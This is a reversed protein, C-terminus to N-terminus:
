AGQSTVLAITAGAMVITAFVLAWTAWVLRASHKLASDHRAAEASEAKTAADLMMQAAQQLHDDLNNVSDALRKTLVVRIVTEAHRASLSKEESSMGPPALIRGANRIIADWDSSLGIEPPKM